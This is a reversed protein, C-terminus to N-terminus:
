CNAAEWTWSPASCYRGWLMCSSLKAVDQVQKDEDPGMNVRKNIPPTDPGWSRELSASPAFSTRRDEQPPARPPEHLSVVEDQGAHVLLIKFMYETNKVTRRPLHAQPSTCHCWRM